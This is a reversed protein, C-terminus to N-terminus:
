DRGTPFGGARALMGPVPAGLREELWPPVTVAAPLSWGHDIGSRDLLYLLDETAINGTAAPAFPCGGVGGLSADLIMVGADIAAVANAIGTHRTDHLHIRLPVDGTVERVAAVRQTVDAPVAVGITDALAVEDAGAAVARQAIGVVRAVDVEGEFPCGFTAAITLSARRGHDHITEALTEFTALSGDTSQGQNRQNFTESAVVVFNVEDCGADLARQVGRDNLALGIYSVDDRRPVRAMVDDADAMQPVRQPNVFSTAEIRRAGAAIAQEILSVKDDTSLVVPENQLGDRPSVEVIEVQM